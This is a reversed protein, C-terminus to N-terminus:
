TEGINFSTLTRFNELIKKNYHIGEEQRIKYLLQSLKITDIPEYPRGNKAKAFPGDTEFLIKDLPIKSIVDRGTKSSFMKPGVSFWCGYNIARELQKETGSFWHMIVPGVRPYKELISIVRSAAKRSHVSLIKGGTLEVLRLIRDFVKVQVDMHMIHNETGDLGIEGVYQVQDLLREFLPLENFREHALQPHLGLATKVRAYGKSLQNTQPWAKPTTTVSLM